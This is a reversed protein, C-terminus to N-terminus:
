ISSLQYFLSGFLQWGLSVMSGVGLHAPRASRVRAFSDQALFNVQRMIQNLVDHVQDRNESDGQYGVASGVTMAYPGNLYWQGEDLVGNVLAPIIRLNKYDLGIGVPVIPAGTLLALRAAGTHARQFSGDRPSIQGEPFVVVSRGSRIRDAAQNLAAIGGAASVSIHGSIRLSPGFLPVKFLIDKILISVQESVLVTIWAPDSTSPHNAVIIKPGDPIASRHQIDAKLVWRAYAAVLSRGAFYWQERVM